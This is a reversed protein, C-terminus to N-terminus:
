VYGNRYLDDGKKTHFDDRQKPISTGHFCTTSPLLSTGPCINLAVSWFFSTDHVHMAGLTSPLSFLQPLYWLFLWSYSMKKKTFCPWAAGHNLWWSMIVVGFWMPHQPHCFTNKNHSFVIYCAYWFHPKDDPRTLRWSTALGMHSESDDFSLVEQRLRHGM